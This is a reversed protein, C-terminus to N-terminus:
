VDASYAPCGLNEGTDVVMWAWARGPEGFLLGYRHDNAEIVSGDKIGQQVREWTAYSMFHEREDKEFVLMNGSIGHCLCPEKVLLGKEWVNKRGKEIAMDLKEKLRPFRDRIPLLSVLVGPSGHCWQVYGGKDSSGMMIYWNGDEEQQDLLEEVSSELKEEFGLDCLVIQLVIGALGHAAGLFESGKHWTWPRRPIIHECLMRMVENVREKSEPVWFRVTRLLVLTGARGDFLENEGEGIVEHMKRVGALVEDVVSMDKTIAARVARSAVYENKFGMKIGEPILAIQDSGCDLYELCWEKGSKGEIVLDPHTKSLWLFVYAISTPGTFLGKYQGNWPNQPPAGLIITTLSHILESRPDSVKALTPSDNPFYRPKDSM